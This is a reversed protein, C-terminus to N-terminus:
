KTEDDYKKVYASTKQLLITLPKIKYKFKM